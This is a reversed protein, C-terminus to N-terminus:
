AQVTRVIIPLFGSSSSFAGFWLFSQPNLPSFVKKFCRKSFSSTVIIMHNEMDSVTRRSFLDLNGGTYHALFVHSINSGRPLAGVHCSFVFRELNLHIEKGFLGPIFFRVFSFRPSTTELLGGISSKRPFELGLVCTQVLVLSGCCHHMFAEMTLGLVLAYAHALHIISTKPEM